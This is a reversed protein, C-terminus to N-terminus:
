YHVMKKDLFCESFGGCYLYLQLLLRRFPTPRLRSKTTVISLALKTLSLSVVQLEPRKRLLQFQFVSLGTDEGTNVLFSTRTQCNWVSLTNIFNIGGAQTLSSRFGQKELHQFRLVEYYLTGEGSEPELKM